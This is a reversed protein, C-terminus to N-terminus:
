KWNNVMLKLSRTIRKTILIYERLLIKLFFVALSFTLYMRLLYHFIMTLVDKNKMGVVSNINLESYSLLISRFDQSFKYFLWSSGSSLVSDQRGGYMGEWGKEVGVLFKKKKQVCVGLIEVLFVSNDKLTSIKLASIKWFEELHISSCM